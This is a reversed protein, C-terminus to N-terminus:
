HVLTTEHPNETFSGVFKKKKYGINLTYERIKVLVPIDIIVKNLACSSIM